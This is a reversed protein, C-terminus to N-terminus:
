GHIMAPGDATETALATELESADFVPGDLCVRRYGSRTPIVCGFCAGFGCAMGAEMALQGHVGHDACLTRVGEIMPPPGCAYVWCGPAEGLESALLDTVRGRHGVSGDDTSVAADTLLSAGEAHGRDRFGALAQIPQDRGILEDALIVLPAIGIGGAVLVARIGPPPLAFGLGLPGLLWVGEGPGLESLRCTGPGVDELLFELIQGASDGSASASRARM